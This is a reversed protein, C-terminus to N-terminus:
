FDDKRADFMVLGSILDLFEVPDIGIDVGVVLAQLSLGFETPSYEPEANTTFTGNLLSVSSGNLSELGAPIPIRPELRPGPLGAWVSVYSGLYLQVIETARVGLAFGPGVRARVRFIDFVDLIRNPIYLLVKHALSHEPHEEEVENTTQPEDSIASDGPRDAFAPISIFILLFFIISKLFIKM